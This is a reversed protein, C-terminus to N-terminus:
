TLILLKLVNEKILKVNSRYLQVNKFTEGSHPVHVDFHSKRLHRDVQIEKEKYLLNKGVLERGPEFFFLKIRRTFENCSFFLM